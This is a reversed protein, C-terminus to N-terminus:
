FFGRYIKNNLTIQIEMEGEHYDSLTLTLGSYLEGEESASIIGTYNDVVEVYGMAEYDCTVILCDEMLIVTLPNIAPMRPGRKSSNENDRIPIPVVPIEKSITSNEKNGGYIPFLFLCILSIIVISKRM